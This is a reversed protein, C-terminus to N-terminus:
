EGFGYAIKSLLSVRINTKEQVTQRKVSQEFFRQNQSEFENLAAALEGEPQMEYENM